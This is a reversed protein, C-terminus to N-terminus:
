SRTSERESCRYCRYLVGSVERSAVCRLGCCSGMDFFFFFLLLSLSLFSFVAPLILFLLLLAAIKLLGECRTVGWSGRGRWCFVALGFASSSSLPACKCVYFFFFFFFFFLCFSFSTAPVVATHSRCATDRRRNQAGYQAKKKRKWRKKKQNNENGKPWLM